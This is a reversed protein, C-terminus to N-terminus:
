WHHSINSWAPLIIRIRKVYSRIKRLWNKAKIVSPTPRYKPTEKIINRRKWAYFPRFISRWVKNPWVGAAWEKNRQGMIKMRSTPSWKRALSRRNNKNIGQSIATQKEGLKSKNKPPYWVRLYNKDKWIHYDSYMNIFLCIRAFSAYVKFECNNKFQQSVLDFTQSPHIIKKLSSYLYFNPTPHIIFIYYLNILILALKFVDM